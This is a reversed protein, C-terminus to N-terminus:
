MEQRVDGTEQRMDVTEVKSAFSKKLSVVSAFCKKLSIFRFKRLSVFRFSAFDTLLMPPLLNDM